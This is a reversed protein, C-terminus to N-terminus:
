GHAQDTSQLPPAEAFERPAFRPLTIRFTTGRGPKSDLLLRGGLSQTVLNYIIHLGLGTGGQNRRTTFFPDFARRQVDDSMGIGNDAVVIEVDAPGIPRAKIVIEGSQGDPFAHIVANLFLNTLVQGYSGPYSDMVIGPPVEIALSLQAKKLIPRVSAVIQETAEGLDFPRRDAHSRDVAVQKFSQILEGARTCIPSSSSPPTACRRAPIRRPALAAVPRHAVEDAFVDCRRSLSSAVTLSIGVPNNVEHAVGAM